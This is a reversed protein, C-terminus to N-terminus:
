SVVDRSFILRLTLPTVNCVDVASIDKCNIQRINTLGTFLVLDFRPDTAEVIVPAALHQHLNIGLGAGAVDPVAAIGAAGAAIKFAKTGRDIMVRFLAKMAAYQADRKRGLAVRAVSPQGAIFSRFEDPVTPAVSLFLCDM